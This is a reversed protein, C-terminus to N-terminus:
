PCGKLLLGRPSEKQFANILLISKLEKMVPATIVYFGTWRNASCILPSTEIHYRGGDHTKRCLYKKVINSMTVSFSYQLFSKQPQKWKIHIHSSIAVTSDGQLLYGGFRVGRWSTCFIKDRVFEQPIGQLLVEGFCVKQFQCEM